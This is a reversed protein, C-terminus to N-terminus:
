DQNQACRGKILLAKKNETRNKPIIKLAIELLTKKKNRTKQRQPTKLSSTVRNKLAHNKLALAQKRNVSERELNFLFRAM